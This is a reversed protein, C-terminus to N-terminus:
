STSTRPREPRVSCALAGRLFGAVATRRGATRRGEPDTFWRLSRRLTAMDRRRRRSSYEPSTARAAGVGSRTRPRTSSGRLSPLRRRQWALRPHPRDARYTDPEDTRSLSSWRGARRRSRRGAIKAAVAGAELGARRRGDSSPPPPRTDASGKLWSWLMTKVEGPSASGSATSPREARLAARVPRPERSRAACREQLLRRPAAM